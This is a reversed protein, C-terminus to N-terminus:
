FKLVVQLLNSEKRYFSSLYM